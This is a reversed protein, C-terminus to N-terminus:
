DEAMSELVDLLEPNDEVIRELRDLQKHEELTEAEDKADRVEGKIQDQASKADPTFVTGCRDCAKAGPRLNHQCTPCFDPTLNREPEPRKEGAAVRAAEIHDEASLHQYTTEMITSRPAHGLLYKITSDDMGYEKKAVTTFYHRFNHPNVPKDIGAREGLVQLRRRIAPMSLYDGKGTTNTASPLPTILYDEPNGTPHYELWQRVAEKAGLLPRKGESGKLGTEEANVWYVGEEPDVDKVRLTQIARIRQGTYLLLDILARDRQNDCAERLDMAEERTFTDRDDVAPGNDDNKVLTIEEPDVDLDHYRYFKIAAAQRQRVTQTSLEDAFTQFVENLEANTLDVLDGTTNKRILRLARGYAELTGHSLTEVEGEGNRYTYQLNDPNLAELFEGAAETDAESLGSDKLRAKEKEFKHLPDDARQAM